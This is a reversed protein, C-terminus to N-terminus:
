KMQRLQQRIFKRNAALRQAFSTTVEVGTTKKLPFQVLYVSGEREATAGIQKLKRVLFYNEVSIEAYFYEVHQSLALEWVLALMLTGLGRNQAEDVTSLSFEARKPEDLLFYRAVGYGPHNRRNHPLAGWAVHNQQDPRSLYRLLQRDIHHVPHLFRNELAQASMMEPARALREQDTPLIPRLLIPEGDTLQTEIYPPPSAPSAQPSSAEHM